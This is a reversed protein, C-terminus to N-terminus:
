GFKIALAVILLIFFAAVMGFFVPKPLGLIQTEAVSNKEEIEAALYQSILENDLPTAM